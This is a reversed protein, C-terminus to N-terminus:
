VKLAASDLEKGDFLDILLGHCSHQDRMVLDPEEDLAEFFVAVGIRIRGQSWTFCSLRWVIFIKSFANRVDLNCGEFFKPAVRGILIRRCIHRDCPFNPQPRCIGVLHRRFADQSIGGRIKPVRDGRIGQMEHVASHNQHTARALLKREARVHQSNDGFNAFGFHRCIEKIAQGHRILARPNAVKRPAQRRGAVTGRNNPQEVGTHVVAMGQQSRDNICSCVEVGVLGVPAHMVASRMSRPHRADCEIAIERIHKCALAIHDEFM